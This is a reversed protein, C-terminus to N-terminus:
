CNRSLHLLYDDLEQKRHEEGTEKTAIKVEEDVEDKTFLADKWRTSFGEYQVVVFLDKTFLM